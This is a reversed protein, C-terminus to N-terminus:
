CMILMKRQTRLCLQLLQKLIKFLVDPNDGNDKKISFPNSRATEEDTSYNQIINQVNYIIYVRYETINESSRQHTNKQKNKLYM